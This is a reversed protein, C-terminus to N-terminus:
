RKHEDTKRSDKKRKLRILHAHTTFFSPLFTKVDLCGIFNRTQGISFEIAHFNWSNKKKKQRKKWNHHSNINNNASLANRKSENKTTHRKFPSFLNEDRKVKKVRICFKMGEQTREIHKKKKFVFFIIFFTKISVRWILSTYFYSILHFNHFNNIALTLVCWLVWAVLFGMSLDPKLEIKKMSHFFCSISFKWSLECCVGWERRFDVWMVFHTLPFKTVYMSLENVDV